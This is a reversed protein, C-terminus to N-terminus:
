KIEELLKEFAYVEDLRAWVDRLFQILGARSAQNHEPNDDRGFYVDQIFVSESVLPRSGVNRSPFNLPTGMGRRRTNVLPTFKIDRLDVDANTKLTNPRPDTLLVEAPHEGPGSVMIPAPFGSMPAALASFNFPMDIQAITSKLTEAFAFGKATTFGSRMADYFRDLIRQDDVDPGCNEYVWESPMEMPVEQLTRVVQYQLTGRENYNMNAYLGVKASKLKDLQETTPIDGEMRLVQEFAKAWAIKKIKARADAKILRSKLQSDLIANLLEEGRLAPDFEETIGWNRLQSLLLMIDSEPTSTKIFSKWTDPILKSTKKRFHKVLAAVLPSEKNKQYNVHETIFSM